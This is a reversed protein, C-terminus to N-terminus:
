LLFLRRVVYNLATLWGAGSWVWHTVVPYTWLTVFATFFLYSGLRAREALAGSVITASTVAFVFNFFYQAM